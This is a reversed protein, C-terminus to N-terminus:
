STELSAVLDRMQSSLLSLKSINMGGTAELEGFLQRFRGVPVENESLWSSVSAVAGEEDAEHALAFEVLSRHYWTMDTGIRRIALRDWHEGAVLERVDQRLRDLRLQSGVLFYAETVEAVSVNTSEAVDVMDCAASLPALIAIESALDVEVGRQIYAAITEEIEVVEIGSVVTRPADHVARVGDRYREITSGIDSMRNGSLFWGAQTRLLEKISRHMDTQLESEVKNDLANIRGRLHGLGHLARAIVFAKAIQAPEAGSMEQLRHVFTIGGINIIQNALETAIIERRLRHRDIEDGFEERLARPFYDYLMTRLWPDDPVDSDLLAESLAIKMYSMLIALEPRALGLGREALDALVDEGPLFELDRDLRGDRELARMVRGDADRDESGTSEVLTIALTQDYNNRLVLESVAQTMEGLLVNRRDEKLKGSAMASDLLIKINVEHDSCDVGAANDVADMNIRGGRRGFAIRGLQTAGLNAGEGIVKVNLEDVDIRVADNARDGVDLHTEDASKLYTGIGGFWLLDARTKLIAKILDGPPLEAAEIDLMQRIEDSLPISKLTRSFIGGGESILDRNFDDWSSRPLDFIRKREEWTKAAHPAPDLFIDRHDFAALLQIQKSLLMGNGFVDGSMDGCGIVTFPTTQIDHGLERFHRKVAEWGGRATIGMVKHDYGQSGGSAFADGLWFNYDQSIGNAIDSFRATGKDAAVVLYPDPADFCVVQEPPINDQNPTALDLNDTIDLLGCIFTKYAAIAEAQVEERTGGQPLQRPFFGGKAGSPVIVSNKVQQAKVLGLIETRFDEPRDSWRLGGRAIRAGRLHVGEVRPSYVFIEAFPRPDPLEEIKSADIKFSIYPKFDGEQTRQFFNTRTMSLILNLMRRMIRDQDLSPVKSLSRTLSQLISESAAERAEPGGPLMPDHRLQFLDVLQLAITPNEALADQMYTQSFAIGTQLRYRACARLLAVDRWAIGPSVVLRNFGDNEAEGTWVAVFAPAFIEQLIDVSLADCMDQEAVFDYIYRCPEDEGSENEPTAKYSFESLVRLGMNELIPMSRTLPISVAYHYVKLRLLFNEDDELRFCRVAVPNDESLTDIIDIDLAAEPGDFAEKYAESFAGRYRRFLARAANYGRGAELADCLKDPWSRVTEVIVREAEADTAGIPDGPTRGIIYHVRALSNDGLQTYFASPRGNFQAALERGVRQRLESSFHDRPFYVIATVFRDFPDRRVFVKTRPREMLHMVGVCTRSLQDIDIQFLEDRPFTEIVNFFANADHSDAEFGTKELALTAKRRLYPIASTSRNYAASTFLGIFRREGRLVGDESYQKVGIYDMYARRHVLSRTNSKAVVIPSPQNLFDRVFPAIGRAAETHRRLVMVEPDKLVGLSSGAAAVLNGTEADGEMIYDRAGLLLFHGGALWTLFEAAEGVEAEPLFSGQGDLEITAEELRMSMEQWDGVALVNHSLIDIIGAKLVQLETESAILSVEIHIMSERNQASSEEGGPAKGELTRKGDRDRVVDIVPHSLFSISLDRDNIEALVSAVLFPMNNSVIEIVTCPSIAEDEYDPNFVRVLPVTDRVVGGRDAAFEWFSRAVARMREVPIRSLEEVPVNQYFQRFFEKLGVVDSPSMEDPEWAAILNLLVEKGSVTEPDQTKAAKSRAAM